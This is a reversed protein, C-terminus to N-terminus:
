APLAQSPRGRQCPDELNRRWPLGVPPRLLAHVCVKPNCPSGQLGDAGKGADLLQQLTTLNYGGASKACPIAGDDLAGPFCKDIGDV